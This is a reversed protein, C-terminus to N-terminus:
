NEPNLPCEACNKVEPEPCKVGIDYRCYDLSKILSEEFLDGIEKDKKKRRESKPSCLRAMGPAALSYSPM